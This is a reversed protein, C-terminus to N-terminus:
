TGGACFLTVIRGDDSPQSLTYGAGTVSWDFPPCGDEVWLKLSGGPDITEREAKLIPVPMWAALDEVVGPVTPVFCGEQASAKAPNLFMAFLILLLVWLDLSLKRGKEM